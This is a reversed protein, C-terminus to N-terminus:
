ATASCTRASHFQVTQGCGDYEDRLLQEAMRTKGTGPPGELIVYRRKELLRAVESQTIEPMLCRMWKTRIADSEDRYQKLPSEGREVFMLDLFATLAEATDARTGRPVYIAYLFAGYKKFVPAYGEFEEAVPDPLALDIRLPEQKAWAIMGDKIHRRNLWACVAQVKRAHGPRGLINEDPALGNTGVVFTILCPSNKGPFFALSMGSYGGADPNDCHLLAAFPVSDMDRIGPARISVSKEADARYRGGEAGFLGKLAKKIRDPWEPSLEPNLIAELLADSWM